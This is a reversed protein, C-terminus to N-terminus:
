GKPTTAGGRRRSCTLRWDRPRPSSGSRSWPAFVAISADSRGAGSGSGNSSAAFDAGRIDPSSSEPALPAHAIGLGHRGQIIRALARGRTFHHACLLAPSECRSRHILRVKQSRYASFGRDWLANNVATDEGARVDEPFGGVEDLADRVYSCRAPPGALETSPRDPLSGSADM